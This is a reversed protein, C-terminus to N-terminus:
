NNPRLLLTTECSPVIQRHPVHLHLLRSPTLVGARSTFPHPFRLQLRPLGTPPLSPHGTSFHRRHFFIHHSSLHPLHLQLPVEAPASAVGPSVELLLLTEPEDHTAEERSHHLSPMTPRPRWQTMCSPAPSSWTATSIHLCQQAFNPKARIAGNLSPSTSLTRSCTMRTRQPNEPYMSLGHEACVLCCCQTSKHPLNAPQASSM